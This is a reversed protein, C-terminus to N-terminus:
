ILKLPGASATQSGSAVQLEAAECSESAGEGLTPVVSRILIPIETGSLCAGGGSLM